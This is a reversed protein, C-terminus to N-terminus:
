FTGTVYLVMYGITLIGNAVSGITPFLMRIDEKHLSKWAFIFGSISMFFCLIGIAGVYLGAKGGQCGSIICAMAFLAFSIVAIVTSVIGTLPHSKEVFRFDGDERKKRKKAM